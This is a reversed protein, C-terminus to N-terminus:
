PARRFVEAFYPEGMMLHHTARGIIMARSPEDEVRDRNYVSGAWYHAPSESFITRLASSSISIGDCVDRSHYQELTLNEYLGSRGISGGNWRTFKLPEKMEQGEERGAKQEPSPYRRGEARHATPRLIQRKAGM